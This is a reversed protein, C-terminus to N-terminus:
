ADYLTLTLSADHTIENPYQLLRAQKYAQNMSLSPPTLPSVEGHAIVSYDLEFTFTNKCIIYFPYTNVKYIRHQRDVYKM